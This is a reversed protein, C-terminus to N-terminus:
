VRRAAMEGGVRVEGGKLGYAGPSAMRKGQSLAPTLSTSASFESPDARVRVRGALSPIPESVADCCLSVWGRGPM